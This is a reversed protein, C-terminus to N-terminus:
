NAAMIIWNSADSVLLAWKGATAALIATGPTASTSPCVNSSASVVTQATITKILISRGPYSAAAPLTATNTAGRNSIIVNESDGVTFSTTKTVPAGPTMSIAGVTFRVNTSSQVGAVSDGSAPLVASDESIKGVM